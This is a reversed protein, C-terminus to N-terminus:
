HQLSASVEAPCFAVKKSAQATAKSRSGLILNQEAIAADPKAANAKEAVM